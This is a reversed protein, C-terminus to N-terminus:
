PTTESSRVAAARRARVGATNAERDRRYKYVCWRLFQPLTLGRSQALAECQKKEEETPFTVEVKRSM